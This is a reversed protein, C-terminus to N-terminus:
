GVGWRFGVGLFLSLLGLVYVVALSSFVYGWM